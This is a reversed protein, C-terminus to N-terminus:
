HLIISNEGLNINQLFKFFILLFAALFFFLLPLLTTVSSSCHQSMMHLTDHWKRWHRSMPQFLHILIKCHRSMAVVYAAVDSLVVFSLDLTTVNGRCLRLM